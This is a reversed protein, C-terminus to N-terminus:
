MANTATEMHKCGQVYFVKERPEAPQQGGRVGRASKNARMDIGLGGSGRSARSAHMVWGGGAVTLMWDVCLM